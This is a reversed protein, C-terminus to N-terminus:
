MTDGLVLNLNLQSVKNPSDALYCLVIRIHFSPEIQQALKTEARGTASFLLTRFSGPVVRRGSYICLYPYAWERPM